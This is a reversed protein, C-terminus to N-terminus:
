SRGSNNNNSLTTIATSYIRSYYIAGFSGGVCKLISSRFLLFPFFVIIPLVEWVSDDDVDDGRSFSTTLLVVDVIARYERDNDGGGAAVAAGGGGGGGGGARPTGGSTGGDEM